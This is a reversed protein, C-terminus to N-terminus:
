LKRRLLWPLGKILKLHNALAHARSMDHMFKAHTRQLQKNLIFRTQVHASPGGGALRAAAMTDNFTPPRCKSVVASDSLRRQNKNSHRHESERHLGGEDYSGRM